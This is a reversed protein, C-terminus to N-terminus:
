SKRQLTRRLSRLMPVAARPLLLLPTVKLLFIPDTRYVRWIRKLGDPFDPRLNGYTGRVKFAIVFSLLFTQHEKLVCRAAEASYGMQVAHELLTAFDTVFAQFFNYGGTNNSRIAIYPQATLWCGRNRALVDLFVYSQPFNTGVRQAYGQRAIASTRFILISVFTLWTGLTTLAEDQDNILCDRQAQHIPATPEDPSAAFTRANFSIADIAPYKSLVEFISDIAGPLLIDDDSLLLAFDGAAHDILYHINGDAGLNQLQRVYTIRIQPHAAAFGAVMEQTQDPSANDSVLLEVQSAISETLQATVAELAQILLAARNYTPICITLTPM